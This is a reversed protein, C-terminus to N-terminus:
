FETEDPLYHRVGQLVGAAYNGEHGQRNEAQYFAQEFGNEKAQQLAQAKLEDTANAVLVSQFHSTLVPLDNGSDGAFVIRDHEINLYSQMFALAHLKSANSPLLDVLGCNKEEDISWIMNYPLDLRLLHKEIQQRYRGEEGLTLDAYYSVKYTNQKEEEQLTLGEIQTLWSMIDKAGLTHWAQHMETQWEDVTVWANNARHYIQTGVDTVVYDPEPLQYQEIANQMLALHRGTVYMLIVHEQECFAHFRQRANAAEPAAGNPIVTRDMDTCLLLTDNQPTATM